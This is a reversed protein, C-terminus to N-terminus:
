GERSEVCGCSCVSDELQRVNVTRSQVWPRLSFMSVGSRHPQTHVQQINTIPATIALADVVDDYVVERGEDDVGFRRCM